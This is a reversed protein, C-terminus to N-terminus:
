ALKEIRRLCERDRAANLRQLLPNDVKRLLGASPNQRMVVETGEARPHLVFEVVTEGLPRARTRLVLRRPPECELVDTTDRVIVPGLGVQHGFRSGPEPWSEESWRIRQSGVVWDAYTTPDSLVKFIAEPSAPIVKRAESM